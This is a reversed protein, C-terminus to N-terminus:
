EVLIQPKKEKRIMKALPESSLVEDEVDLDFKLKKM